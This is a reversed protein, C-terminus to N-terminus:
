YSGKIPMAIRATTASSVSSLRNELLQPLRSHASSYDSPKCSEVLRNPSVFLTEKKMIVQYSHLRLQICLSLSVSLQVFRKAADLWPPHCLACIPKPPYNRVKCVPAGARNTTSQCAETLKEYATKAPFALERVRTQPARRRACVLLALGPCRPLLQAM